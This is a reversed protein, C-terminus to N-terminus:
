NAKRVLVVQSRDAKYMDNYFKVFEAYDSAPFRGAHRSYDRIVEIKDAEVKFAISYTGFKSDLSLVNPISESAYGEPLKIEISDVDHFAYPYEIDFKRTANVDYKNAVKNFLNPKIFLRKGSVTAYSPALVHLEETVEPILKKNESYNTKEVQYTPLNLEKNLYRERFAKDVESILAHPIEQQIGTYQTVLSADLNGTADVSAIVKRIQRNDEPAYVPTNVVHGGDDGILLAKRNGVNAGMFGPAVTQNTCEFWLTDKGDPMCVVAHNFYPSPFDEWLGRLNEDDSNVLVYYAKVGAEHLLSAMYNSLAKCDGYKKAAVFSADLPQWGGMGLKILIYRTNQQLYNYLAFAKARNTSLKDTIGHVEKKVNEPLVDKGANLSAVFKGLNQWTDMKGAYGHIEFDVPAVYVSTTLEEWSPSFDEDDFGSLNKVEWTYTIKKGDNVIVPKGAYNFQKYRLVYNVPTEVIFKSEQVACRNSQQPTWHPLFFIGDYDVEDEYQVTYPYEAYFFSHMKIRDDTAITM